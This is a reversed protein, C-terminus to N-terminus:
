LRVGKVAEVFRKIKMANESGRTEIGGAIDVGFPQITEIAEIVNQAQLGGALFTPFQSAIIRAEAKDVGKGQGQKKRDLLIYSIKYGKIIDAQIKDETFTKIVKAGHIKKVYDPSENGHLQVFDLGVMERIKNVDEIKADKFIGVLKIKGRIHLAIEKAAEPYIYRKSLPIFNFGLFDVGADVAAQASTLRRIGCIKIAVMTRHLSKMFTIISKTKMLSTGILVGKAGAKEFQAVEKKSVIGSFGLRMYRKPIKKMLSCATEVNIVFTDLDRANVAIIDTETATAKRLDEENAIEVVPEIGLNKALSVFQQLTKQNVIRAIFLLADAGLFKAEYIQSADIIFDKQLVPLHTLKKVETVLSLDGKFFHKETIVSIAHIGANEYERIKRPLTRRSAIYPNTPSAFKLEGIVAMDKASFLANKFKGKEQFSLDKRKQRIIAELMNHM